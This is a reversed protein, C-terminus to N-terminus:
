RPIYSPNRLPNKVQGRGRLNDFTSNRQPVVSLSSKQKVIQAHPSFLPSSNSQPSKLNPLYFNNSTPFNSNSRSNRELSNPNYIM